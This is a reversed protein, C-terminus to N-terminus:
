RVPQQNYRSKDKKKAAALKASRAAAEEAAAKAAADIEKSSKKKKMSTVKKLRENVDVAAADEETQENGAAVDPGNTADASSPQDQIEKGEKSKDKKKKKKATKSEGPPNKDKRGRREKRTTCRYTYSIFVWILLFKKWEVNATKGENSQSPESSGWVSQTPATTAYYDDHDEDDVDAWSKVTLPAPAWFVQSDPEQRSKQQQSRPQTSPTLSYSESYMLSYQPLSGVSPQDFNFSSGATSLTALRAHPPLGPGLHDLVM